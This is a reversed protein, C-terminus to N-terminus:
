DKRRASIPITLFEKFESGDDSELIMLHWQFNDDSLYSIIEGEHLFGTTARIIVTRGNARATNAGSDQFKGNAIRVTTADGAYRGEEDRFLFRLAEAKSKEGLQIKAAPILEIDRSVGEDINDGSRVPKRWFTEVSALVANEGEVPFRTNEADPNEPITAAVSATAWIAFALLGATLIGLSAKELISLTSFQFPLPGHENSNDAESPSEEDPPTTSGKQPPIQAPSGSTEAAKAISPTTAKHQVNETDSRSSSPAAAKPEESSVTKPSAPEPQPAKKAPKPASPKVPEKVPPKEVKPSTDTNTPPAAPRKVTKRAQKKFARPEITTRLSQARYDTPKKEPLATKPSEDDASPKESASPEENPDSSAPDERLRKRRRNM